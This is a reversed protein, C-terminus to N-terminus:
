VTESSLFIFSRVEDFAKRVADVKCGIAVLCKEFGECASETGFKSVRHERSGM